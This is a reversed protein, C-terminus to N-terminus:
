TLRICQDFESLECKLSCFDECIHLHIKSIQTPALLEVSLSAGLCDLCSIFISFVHHKYKYGRTSQSSRALQEDERHIFAETNHDIFEFCFVHRFEISFLRCVLLLPKNSVWYKFTMLLLPISAYANGVYKGSAYTLRSNQELGNSMPFFPIVVKHGRFHLNCVLLCRYIYQIYRDM